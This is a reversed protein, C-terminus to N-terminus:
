ISLIYKQSIKVLALMAKKIYKKTDTDIQKWLEKFEFLRAIQDKDCDKLHEDYHHNVFFVDNQKLINTRYEDNKYVNMIFYAIPEEPADHIIASLILDMGGLGAVENYYESLHRVIGMVVTNFKDALDALLQTKELERIQVKNQKTETKSDKNSSM